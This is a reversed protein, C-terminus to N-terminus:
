KSLVKSTINKSKKMLVSAQRGLDYKCPKYLVILKIKRGKEEKKKKGEEILRERHRKEKEKRNEGNREGV